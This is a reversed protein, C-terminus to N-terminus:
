RVARRPKSREVEALSLTGVVHRYQGGRTRWVDNVNTAGGLVALKAISRVAAVNLPRLVSANIESIHSRVGGPPTSQGSYAVVRVLMRKRRGRSPWVRQEDCVVATEPTDIPIGPAHPISERVHGALA